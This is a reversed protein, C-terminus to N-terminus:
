SRRRASHSSRLSGGLSHTHINQQDARAPALVRERPLQGLRGLEALEIAGGAIGAHVLVAFAHGDVRHVEIAQDIEGAFVLDAEGDDARFIGKGGPDDISELLGAQAGEPGAGGGRADFRAFGEGLVEHRAVADGGRAVGFEVVGAGRAVVDLMVTRRDNDLGVAEGRALTDGDGHVDAVRQVGDVLRHDVAGEARGALAHDDLFKQFPLLGGDERKAVAVGDEREHGRLIM